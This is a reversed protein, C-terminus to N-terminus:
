SKLSFFHRANHATIKGVESLSLGKIKAIVEATEVVFAPENMQGRKGEPALYPADTEILLRDLPVYKVVDRLPQSKKFTVIGSFSIYWGRNLAEKAEALSGTFCHLLAPLNVYEADTISFLDAFADRCHFIVPMKEIKALELYKSLFQQQIAKASHEYFYDLGTEGIAVIKKNKAHQAVIPFFLAGEKEVDHPTTAAANRINEVFGQQLKLGEELSKQNTCINIIWDVEAKKARAVMEKAQQALQESTLHAHSDVFM